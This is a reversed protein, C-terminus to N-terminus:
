RRLALRVVDAGLRTADARALGDRYTLLVCVVPGRATYLIAATHYADSLWGNKQAVPMGAPVASHFLGANEGVPRSALLLGLALRAQHRSLGSARLAAPDGFAAAHIRELVAALDRATTVRKSVLRPQTPEAGHATGIRYLGTYTSAPAGMRRLATEVAGRGLRAYLRNAALNSSWGTLQALDYWVDSREPRAGAARLAAVLVGLKVTSAAPFSAGANWTATRGSALDHIVVASYGDFRRALTRLRADLRPDPRPPRVPLAATTPLPPISAPLTAVPKPGLRGVPCRALARRAEVATARVLAEPQSRGSRRDFAEAAAVNARAYRTLAAVAPGCDASTRGRLAEVIARAADYRAQM